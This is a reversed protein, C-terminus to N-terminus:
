SIRRGIAYRAVLMLIAFAGGVAAGLPVYAPQGAAWLVLITVGALPTGVAAADKALDYVSPQLRVACRGSESEQVGGKVGAVVEGKGPRKGVFSFTSVGDMRQSLRRVSIEGSSLEVSSGSIEIAIESAEDSVFEVAIVGHVTDSASCSRPVYMHARIQDNSIPAVSCDRIYRTELANSKVRLSAAHEYLRQYDSVLSDLSDIAGSTFAVLENHVTDYLSRIDHVSLDLREGIEVSLRTRDLQTRLDDITSGTNQKFRWATRIEV